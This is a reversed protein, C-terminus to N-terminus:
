YIMILWVWNLVSTCADVDCVSIGIIHTMKRIPNGQM